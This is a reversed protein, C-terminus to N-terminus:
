RLTLGSAKAMMLVFALIGGWMMTQVLPGPGRFRLPRGQIIRLAVAPCVHSKWRSLRGTRGCDLCQFRFLRPLFWSLPVIIALSPLFLRTDEMSALIVQRIASAWVGLGLFGLFPNALVRRYAAPDVVM